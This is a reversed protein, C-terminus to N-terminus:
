MLDSIANKSSKQENPNYYFKLHKVGATEYLKYQIQCGPCTMIDYPESEGVNINGLCEPCLLLVRM